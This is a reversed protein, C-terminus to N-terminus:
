VHILVNLTVNLIRLRSLKTKSNEKYGSKKTKVERKGIKYNILKEKNKM